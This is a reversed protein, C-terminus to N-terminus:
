PEFESYLVLRFELDDETVNKIDEPKSLRKKLRVILAYDDPQPKYMARNCEVKVGLLNTLLEATSQHGIYSEIAKAKAVIEKVEDITLPPSVALVGGEAPPVLANLFVLKKFKETYHEFSLLFYATGCGTTNCEGVYFGVPIIKRKV